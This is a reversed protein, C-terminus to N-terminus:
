AGAISYTRSQDSWDAWSTVVYWPDLSYGPITAAVADRLAEGLTGAVDKDFDRGRVRRQMTVESVKGTAQGDILYVVHLGGLVVDFDAKEGWVNWSDGDTRAEIYPLDGEVELGLRLATQATQRASKLASEALPKLVEINLIAHGTPVIGMHMHLM